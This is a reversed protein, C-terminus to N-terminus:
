VEWKPVEIGNSTPRGDWQRLGPGLHDGPPACSGISRLGGEQVPTGACRSVALKPVAQTGAKAPIVSKNATRGHKPGCHFARKEGSLLARLRSHRLPLRDMDAQPSREFIEPEILFHFSGM